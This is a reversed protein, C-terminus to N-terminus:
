KIQKLNFKKFILNFLLYSISTYIITMLISSSIIRLLLIFHYSIGSAMGLIIFALLHYSIIVILSIGNVTLINIPFIKNLIKIVIAAGLFLLLNFLLTSTYLIDFLLGMIIALGFYKKENEFYPYIIVLSILSYITALFSSSNLMSPFINSM